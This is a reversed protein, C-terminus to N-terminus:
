STAHGDTGARPRASGPRALPLARADAPQRRARPRDHRSFLETLAGNENWRSTTRRKVNVRCSSNSIFNSTTIVLAYMTSPLPSAGYVPQMPMKSPTMACMPVSSQGRIHGGLAGDVRRTANDRGAPHIHVRMEVCLRYPVGPERGATSRTHRREYSTVPASWRGAQRM